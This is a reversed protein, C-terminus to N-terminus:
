ALTNPYIDEWNKFEQCSHVQIKNNGKPVVCSLTRVTNGMM